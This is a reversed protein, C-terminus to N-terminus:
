PATEASVHNNVSNIRLDLVLHEVENLMVLSPNLIVAFSRLM